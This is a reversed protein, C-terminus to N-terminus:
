CSDKKASQSPINQNTEDFFEECEIKEDEDEEHEKIEKLDSQQSEEETTADSGRGGNRKANSKGNNWKQQM